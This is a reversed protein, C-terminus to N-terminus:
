FIIETTAYIDYISITSVNFAASFHIPTNYLFVEPSFDQSLSM